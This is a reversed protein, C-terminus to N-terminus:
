CIFLGLANDSKFATFTVNQFGDFSSGNICSQLPVPNLSIDILLKWSSTHEPAPTDQFKFIIIIMKRAAHLEEPLKPTTTNVSEVGSMSSSANISMSAGGFPPSSASSGGQGSGKSQIGGSNLCYAPSPATTHTYCYYCYDSVIYLLKIGKKNYPYTTRPSISRMLASCHNGCSESKLM